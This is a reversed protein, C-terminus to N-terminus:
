PQAADTHQGELLWVFASVPPQLGLILGTVAPTEERVAYRGGSAARVTCKDTM